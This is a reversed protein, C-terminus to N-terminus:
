EINFEKSYVQEWKWKTGDKDKRVQYTWVIRYTGPEAQAYKMRGADEEGEKGMGVYIQQNWATDISKGPELQPVDHDIDCEPWSCHRPIGNWAGAEDKKQLDFGLGDLAILDALNNKIVIEVEEGKSYKDKYIQLDIDKVTLDANGLSFEESRVTHQTWQSPDNGQRIQYSITMRYNGAEPSAYQIGDKIGKFAKPEWPFTAAKGAKIEGPTDFDVSCDPWECRIPIREWVNPTKEFEFSQMAFAPTLSQAVSYISDDTNNVLSVKVKEGVFYHAKDLSIEVEGAYVFHASFCISLILILKNYKM